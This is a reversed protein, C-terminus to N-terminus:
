WLMMCYNDNILQALDAAIGLLSAQDFDMDFVFDVDGESDSEDEPGSNGPDGMRRLIEVVRAAHASATHGHYQPMWRDEVTRVETDNFEAKVPWLTGDLWITPCLGKRADPYDQILHWMFLLVRAQIDSVTWPQMAWRCSAWSKVKVYVMDPKQLRRTARLFATADIGVDSLSWASSDFALIIESRFDVGEGWRTPNAHGDNIWAQLPHFNGFASKASITRMLATIHAGAPNMICMERLWHETYMLTPAKRVLRHSDLDYNLRIGGEPIMYQLIYNDFSEVEDSDYYIEDEEGDMWLKRILEQFTKPQVVVLRGPALLVSTTEKYIQSCTSLVGLRDTMQIYGKGGNRKLLQVASRGEPFLHHYITNRIEAPLDLFAIASQAMYAPSVAM